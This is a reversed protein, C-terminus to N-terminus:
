TSLKIKIACRNVYFFLRLGCYLCFVFGFGRGAIIKEMREAMLSSDRIGLTLSVLYRCRCRNARGCHYLRRRRPASCASNGPM